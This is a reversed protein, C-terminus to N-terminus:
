TRVRVSKAPLGVAIEYDGIVGKVVANAGIIAGKGIKSGRLVAAGAAIWAGDSINIPSTSIGATRIVEKGNFNHDQDRITVREAILVDNAIFINEHACITCHSGIFVNEGIEMTGGRVVIETNRGIHSNKHILLKGGDTVSFRVHDSISVSTGISIGSHSLRIWICRLISSLIQVRAAIARIINPPYLAM